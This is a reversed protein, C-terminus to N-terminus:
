RLLAIARNLATVLADIDQQNNYLGLSARVVGEVGLAALLPQACLHGGRLALGADDLLHCLDHPHCGAVTFSVLPLRADRPGIVTVGDIATLAQYLQQRLQSQQQAIVPWDLGSLWRAAAGFGIAPAIPPTGAEFGQPAPLATYGAPSIGGFGAGESGASVWGVMGGGLSFHQWKALLEPRAWLAGIGTPGYCKHGSVVYADVGLAAVQQPGHPAVQAGDVILLAAVRQALVRLAALDTVAGTVNSGHSIAVVATNPTIVAEAAAMDIQWDAM